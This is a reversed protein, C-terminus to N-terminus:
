FTLICFLFDKVLGEPEGFAMLTNRVCCTLGMLVFLMMAKRFPGAQRGKEELEKLRGPPVQVHLGTPELGCSQAQVPRFVLIVLHSGVHSTSQPTGALTVEYCCTWSM